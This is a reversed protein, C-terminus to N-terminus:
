LAIRRSDSASRSASAKRMSSPTKVRTAAPWTASDFWEKGQAQKNYDDAGLDYSGTDISVSASGATPKAPDFNLQASFKKFKGDVPVNMQKSTATVSSKAVDVQALASGAATLSAAAFAALMYRYFSVKM